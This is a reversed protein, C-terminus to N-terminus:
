EVLTPQRQVFWYYFALIVAVQLLLNLLLMPLRGLLDVDVMMLTPLNWANAPTDSTSFIGAYFSNASWWAWGLEISDTKFTIFMILFYYIFQRILSTVLLVTFASGIGTIVTSLTALVTILFLPKNLLLSCARVLYTILLQFSLGILLSVVALFPLIEFWAEPNGGWRYAAPAFLYQLLSAIARLGLVFVTALGIRRWHLSGNASLLGRAPRGHIKEESLFLGCCLAVLMAGMVWFGAIPVENFLTELDDLRADIGATAAYIFIGILGVILGALMAGLVVLLSLLYLLIHNRGQHVVTILTSRM